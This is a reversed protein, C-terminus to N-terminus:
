GFPASYVVEETQRDNGINSLTVKDFVSRDFNDQYYFTGAREWFARFLFFNELTLAFLIITFTFGSFSSSVIYSNILGFGLFIEYHKGVVVLLSLVCVLLVGGVDFSTTLYDIRIDFLLGYILYALIQYLLAFVAFILGNKNTPKTEKQPTESYDDNAM